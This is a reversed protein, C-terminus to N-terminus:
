YALRITGLYDVSPTLNVSVLYLSVSATIKALETPVLLGYAFWCKM